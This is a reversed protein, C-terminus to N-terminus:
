IFLIDPVIYFNGPMCIRACDIKSEFNNANGSRGKYFFPLCDKDVVDFYWREISRTGQGSNKPMKCPNGKFKLWALAIFDTGDVDILNFM